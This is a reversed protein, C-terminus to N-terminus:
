PFGIGDLGPISFGGQVGQGRQGSSAQSMRLFPEVGALLKIAKIRDNAAGKTSSIAIMDGAKLDVVTIDPFRDIMEEIGGAGRGGGRVAGPPRVGGRGEPRGPAGAARVGGASQFSAMREAMEAPFRKLVSAGSLSIRADKGTRLDKIVVQNVATDVSKITGAITQFAGTVIQEAALDSGDASKTGLARLMDGPKIEALSSEKAEDFRISDQAYRLYRTKKTPTVTITSSDALTRMEVTISSTLENVTAVKGTIGRVRWEASEKARKQAIDTKSMLYVARAPISRGETSLVGTVAIKDGTGIDTLAAPAATKFSPNDPSVRKIETKGSLVASVEGSQTKIMIKESNVSIVEGSIVTPKMGGESTQGFSYLAPVLLLFGVNILKRLM